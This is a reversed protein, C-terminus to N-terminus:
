FTRTQGTNVRGYFRIMEDAIKDMSYLRSVGDKAAEGMRKAKGPDLLLKRLAEALSAPINPSYILGGNTATIIEPFGGEQPQVAPIGCAMAEIIYTGFADGGPVPVSLVSLGNFFSVPDRSYMDPDVEIDAALSHGSKKLVKKLFPKDSSVLGGSLRLRLDSFAKEKKLLLFADIIIGMGTQESLRSLFGIRRPVFAPRASLYFQPNIGIPIVASKATDIEILKKMKELYYQSVAIFSVGHSMESLLQWAKQRWPERMSNIWGDEDQLTCVVPIGLQQIAPAFGLLLANSLHVVDPKNKELFEKIRNFDERQSGLEGRLMSLTIDELKVSSTASSFKSAIQLFFKNNFFRKIFQPAKQYSPFKERLYVNVAGFFVTENVGPRKQLPLYLPLTVADHGKAKIIELLNRDRFCNQCYFVGGFGPIIYAIKM